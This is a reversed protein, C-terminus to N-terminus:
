YIITLSRDADRKLNSYATSEFEVQARCVPCTREKDLWEVICLECFIHSCPLTVGQKPSEYCIPCDYSPNAAMEAETSHHGFEQM